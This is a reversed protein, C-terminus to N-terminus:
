APSAASFRNAMKSSLLSSFDWSFPPPMIIFISILKLNFFIEIIMFFSRETPWRFPREASYASFFGIRFALRKLRNSEKGKNYGLVSSYVLAAPKKKIGETRRSM